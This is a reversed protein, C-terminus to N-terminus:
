RTERLTARAERLVRGVAAAVPGAMRAGAAQPHGGGGLRRALGDVRVGGRSRLSVRVGDVEELCLVALVAGAVTLAQEVFGEVSAAPQRHRRLMSRGVVGWVLQGGAATHLGALFQGLLRLRAVPWTAFLAEHVRVASAGAALLAAARRHAEPTTHATRFGQTDAVIGCYLAEAM